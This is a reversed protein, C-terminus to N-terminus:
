ATRGCSAGEPLRHLRIHAQWSDPPLCALGVRHLATVLRKRNFNAKYLEKDVDKVHELEDLYRGFTRIPHEVVHATPEDMVTYYDQPFLDAQEERLRHLVARSLLGRDRTMAELVGAVYSEPYVATLYMGHYELRQQVARRLGAELLGAHSASMRRSRSLDIIKNAADYYFQVDKRGNFLPLLADDVKTTNEILRNLWDQKYHEMAKTGKQTGVPSYTTYPAETVGAVVGLRSNKNNFIYTTTHLIHLLYPKRKRKARGKPTMKGIRGV